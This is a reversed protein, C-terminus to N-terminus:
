TIDSIHWMTYYSRIERWFRMKEEIYIKQLGDLKLDRSLDTLERKWRIFRNELSSKITIFFLLLRLYKQNLRIIM